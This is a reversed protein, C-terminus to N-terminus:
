CSSPTPQRCRWNDRWGSSCHTPVILRVQLADIPRNDMSPRQAFLLHTVGAPELKMCDAFLTPGIGMDLFTPETTKNIGPQLCPHDVCWGLPLGIQKQYSDNRDHAGSGTRQPLDRGTPEV